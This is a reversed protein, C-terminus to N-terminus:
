LRINGRVHAPAIGYYKKFMRSFYAPSAYDLCAAIESVSMSTTRLLEMAAAMEGKLMYAKPSLGTAKKVADRLSRECMCARKALEPLGIHERRGSELLSLVRQLSSDDYASNEARLRWDCLLYSFLAQAMQKETPRSSDLSAFLRQLQAREQASASIMFIRDLDSLKGSFGFIFWYFQWGEPFAAYHLIECDKFLAFSNAPLTFTKGSRLEMRGSGTLTRVAIFADKLVERRSVDYSQDADVYWLAKLFLREMSENDTGKVFLNRM